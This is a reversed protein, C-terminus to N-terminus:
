AYRADVADNAIELAIKNHGSGLRHMATIHAFQIAQARNYGNALSQIVSNDADEIANAESREEFTM